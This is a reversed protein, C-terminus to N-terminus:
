SKRGAPPAKEPGYHYDYSYDYGGYTTARSSLHTMVIGALRASGLQLRRLAGRAQGRRTSSSKLVFLTSSVSSALTPADAFGLVPPGDIVVHDYKDLANTLFARIQEGGWLEAPNPPLPGCAIFSMNPVRTRQVVDEFRASASLLTSMGKENDGGVLRHMSPNRLDGEVLLVNKGNRAFNQAVAFATTSKGEAPVASTVLLSRPAGEPTSLQLATVLSYYAESFGSRPDELAESPVENKDLRPITGLVLAGLKSEVDEPTALTEDLAEIVFAAIGGLAIGLLLALLINNVLNPSSPKQPAKAEDVVSINNTSIAGIVSVEKYRQLLGDYLTRSTDLERQLINYQISRSRFDLVDGKLGEVQARLSSEQNAAVRYQANISSRIAGAISNTQRDLEDIQSKLQIMEPYDPRYVRLNQQYQADLKAREQTLHQITPNEYVDPLSMLAEGRSQRWKEEAAVRAATAEALASNIRGLNSSALSQNQDPTAGGEESVNIIEQNAAYAVLQREADELKAKTQAILGELFRRAYASSEYRRELNSQIFNSAFANTIRASLAPDPSDFSISVLRSGRVPNVKFNDQVAKLTLERIRLSQARSPAGTGGGPVDIGMADLFATSTALGEQDIVRNALSKSRLLGYQTQFFEEGQVMSEQPTTDDVNLVRAVERDIQLTSSATYMPTTLLTAVVGLLLAAGVIAAILIRHKLALHWYQGINFGENPDSKEGWSAANAEWASRGSADFEGSRVASEVRRNGDFRM